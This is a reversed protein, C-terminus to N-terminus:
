YSVLRKLKKKLGFESMTAYHAQLKAIIANLEEDTLVNDTM